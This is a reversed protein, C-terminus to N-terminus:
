NLVTINRGSHKADYLLQDVQLLASDIDRTPELALIGVSITLHIDDATGPIETVSLVQHLRDAVRGAQHKETDPLLVMFEEGGWRCIVDSQRFVRRCIDAFIKIAQDGASHGFRDNIAKFHDLDAMLLASTQKSRKIRASEQQLRENFARRNLLGTLPDTAALVRLQARTKDLEQLMLKQSENTQYLALLQMVQSALKLLSQKQKESLRRPRKDLVCLTGLAIGDPTELLAGAYFRLQPDGTVLPNSDFRRDKLTDPVIFLGPQLIAHACISVDLETQTIGFGIESKFWQRDTDIFNIVAFPTDCITAALWNIDDFAQDRESDLIHYRELAARRQLAQPDCNSNHAM